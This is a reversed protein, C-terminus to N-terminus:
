RSAACSTHERRFSSATVSRSPSSAASCCIIVWTDFFLRTAGFFQSPNSTSVKSAEHRPPEAQPPLLGAQNSWNPDGQAPGNTSGNWAKQFNADVGGPGVAPGDQATNYFSPSNTQHHFMRSAPVPYPMSGESHSLAPARNLAEVNDSSSGSDGQAAMNHATARPDGHIPRIPTPAPAVFNSSAYPFQLQHSPSVIGQQQQQQANGGMGSVPFSPYMPHVGNPTRSATSSATASPPAAANNNAEMSPGPVDTLPVSTSPIGPALANSQQSDTATTNADQASDEREHKAEPQQEHQQMDSVKKVPDAEAEISGAAVVFTEDGGSKEDVADGKGEGNEAEDREEDQKVPREEEDEQPQQQDQATQTKDDEVM